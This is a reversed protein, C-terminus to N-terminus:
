SLDWSAFEGVYPMKKPRGTKLNMGYIKRLDFLERNLFPFFSKRLDFTQQVFIKANINILFFITSGSHVNPWARKQWKVGFWLTMQSLLLRRSIIIKEKKEWNWNSTFIKLNKSNLHDRYLKLQSFNLSYNWNQDKCMLPFMFLAHLFGASLKHERKQWNPDITILQYLVRGNICHTHFASQM